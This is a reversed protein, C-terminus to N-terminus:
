DSNESPTQQRVSVRRSAHAQLMVAMMVKAVAGGVAAEEVVEVVEGAVM